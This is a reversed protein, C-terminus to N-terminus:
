LAATDSAPGTLDRNRQVQLLLQYIVQYLDHVAPPAHEMQEQCYQLSSQLSYDDPDPQDPQDPQMRPNILLYSNFMQALNGVMQEPLSKLAQSLWNYARPNDLPLQQRVQWLLYEDDRM